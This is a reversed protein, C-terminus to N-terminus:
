TSDPLTIICCQSISYCFSHCQTVRDAQSEAVALETDCCSSVLSAGFCVKAEFHYYIKSWDGDVGASRSSVSELKLGCSIQSLEYFNLAIENVTIITLNWYKGFLFMQSLIVFESVSSNIVFGLRFPPHPRYTAYQIIVSRSNTKAEFCHWTVLSTWVFIATIFHAFHVFLYSSRCWEREFLDVFVAVAFESTNLLFYVPRVEAVM